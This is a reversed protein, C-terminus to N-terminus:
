GEGAVEVSSDSSSWTEPRGGGPWGRGRGRRRGSPQRWAGRGEGRRRQFMYKRLERFKEEGLIARMRLNQKVSVKRIETRITGVEEVAALVADEDVTPSEIKERLDVQALQLKAQLKITQKRGAYYLKRLRSLEDASIGVKDALEPNNVVAALLAGHSRGGVRGGARPGGRAQVAVATALMVVIVVPFYRKM